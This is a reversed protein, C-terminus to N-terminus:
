KRTQRKRKREEFKELAKLDGTKALEFLKKDIAYDSMDVWKQYLEHFRSSKDAFAKKIEAEPLNLINAMKEVSYSFAGFNIVEEEREEAIVIM